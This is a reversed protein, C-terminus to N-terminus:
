QDSGADSFKQANKSLKLFIHDSGMNNRKPSAPNYSGTFTFNQGLYFYGVRATRTKLGFIRNELFKENFKGAEFIM